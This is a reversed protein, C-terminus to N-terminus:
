FFTQLINVVKDRKERAILPQSISYINPQDCHRGYIPIWPRLFPILNPLFPSTCLQLYPQNKNNGM